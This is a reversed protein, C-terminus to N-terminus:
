AQASTFGTWSFWESAVQKPCKGARLDVPLVKSLWDRFGKEPLAGLFGDFLQGNIMAVMM